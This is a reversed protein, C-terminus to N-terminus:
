SFALVQYVRVFLRVYFDVAVADVWLLMSMVRVSLYPPLIAGSVWPVVYKKYRNAATDISHLLIRLAM